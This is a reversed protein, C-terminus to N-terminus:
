EGERTTPPAALPLSVTMTLGGGPTSSPTVTGGMAETFGKVVTLGLGIGHHTTHDGLRHFPAFMRQWESPDVGPGHDIVTLEARGGTIRGTLRVPWARDATQANRVLNTIVHELLAPDAHVLPLDDPIDLMAEAGTAVLAAAAIGDLAVPRPHVSLEGAQLRSASLLNDVLDGLRDTSQEVTALLEERDSSPIHVDPQRLTSVAAKIGALPTRLDHSVAALLATRLRDIEALRDAQDTLRDAATRYRVAIDVALSVALAVLLYVALLVLDDGHQVRFTYYPPIFFFNVLLDAAAVAFLSSWLDGVVATVVVPLLFLLSVTAVSLQM